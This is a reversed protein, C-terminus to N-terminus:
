VGGVVFNKGGHDTIEIVSANFTLNLEARSPPEQILFVSHDSLHIGKGIHSQDATKDTHKGIGSTEKRKWSMFIESSYQTIQKTFFHLIAFQGIIHFVYSFNNGIDAVM